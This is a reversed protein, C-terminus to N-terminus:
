FLVLLTSLGHFCPFFQVTCTPGPPPTTPAVEMMPHRRPAAASADGERPHAKGRVLLKDLETQWTARDVAAPLASTDLGKPFHHQDPTNMRPEKRKEGEQM